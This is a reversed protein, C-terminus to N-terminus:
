EVEQMWYEICCDICTEYPDRCMGNEDRREASIYMPCVQLVGHDDIAAEPYQELFVDQRTKRPHEKSWKEVADVIKPFINAEAFDAVTGLCAKGQAAHLPCEEVNSSCRPFSRCMRKVEVLFKVADM